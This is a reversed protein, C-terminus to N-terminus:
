ITSVLENLWNDIADLSADPEGDIKLSPHVLQAGSDKLTKEIRDVAGCFYRYGSDGCGFLAFQKGSLDIDKLQAHFPDFDEQLGIEDEGWTSCGMIVLSDASSVNSIDTQAVDRTEVDVGKGLLFTAIYRAVYETNGTTSGYIILSRKM